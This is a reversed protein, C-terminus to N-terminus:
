KLDPAHKQLLREWWRWQWAKIWGVPNVKLHFMITLHVGPTCKMSWSSISIQYLPGPRCSAFNSFWLPHQTSLVLLKVRCCREQCHIHRAPVEESCLAPYSARSNLPGSEECLLNMKFGYINGTKDAQCGEWFGYLVADHARDPGQDILQGIQHLAHSMRVKTSGSSCRKTYWCPLPQTVLSSTDQRM